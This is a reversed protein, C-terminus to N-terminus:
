RQPKKGRRGKAICSNCGRLKLIKEHGAVKKRQRQAEPVQTAIPSNPQAAPSTATRIRTTFSPTDFALERSGGLLNDVIHKAADKNWREHESEQIMEIKKSTIRFSYNLLELIRPYVEERSIGRIFPELNPSRLRNHELLIQFCTDRMASVRKEAAESRSLYFGTSREPPKSGSGWVMAANETIEKKFDDALEDFRRAIVAQLQFLDSDPSM